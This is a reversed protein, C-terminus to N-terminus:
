IRVYQHHLGGLLPRSLVEGTLDPPRHLPSDKDLSLHTRVANYYDVYGSLVRRLHQEGLVVVHDLCERRISGIVREVYGNQWPSRPAVPHDRIGMASVRRKFVHGYARDNDRLLIVPATDWPFAETLQQALWDATPHRTVAVSIIERTLHKLMVLAYLWEFAVTPVTMMDIAVIEGAHNALFTRWTQGRGGPNRTMYKSVTSQAVSYGLMLLEGHIRPAGWLPNERCMQHILARLEPEIKPRGIPGRSKWRWFARLGARHWGIVTEPRVIRISGLLVPFLRYLCLFLARDFWRLRVRRPKRRRLVNLQHRLIVIESQLQARSRFLDRLCILILRLVAAM